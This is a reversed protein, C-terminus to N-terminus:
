NTEMAMEDKKKNNKLDKEQNENKTEKKSSSQLVHLKYLTTNTPLPWAIRGQLYCSRQVHGRSFTASERVLVVEVLENCIDPVINYRLIHVFLKILM